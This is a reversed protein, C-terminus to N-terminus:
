GIVWRGVFNEEDQKDERTISEATEGSVSTQPQKEDSVEEHALRSKIAFSKSQQKTNNQRFIFGSFFQM